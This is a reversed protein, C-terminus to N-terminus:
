QIKGDKIIVSDLCNGGCGVCNYTYDLVRLAFSQVNALLAGCTLATVILIRKTKM